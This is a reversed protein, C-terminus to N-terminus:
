ISQSEVPGQYQWMLHPLMAILQSPLVLYQQQALQQGALSHLYVAALTAPLPKKFQAIMGAIVGTLTDGMGGTAMAAVGTTNQYVNARQYIETRHQKLVLITKTPWKQLAQQNNAVTQEAITLQSLRHWEEQHPTLIIQAKTQPIQQHEALLTLASGDIIVVQQEALQSLVRQLIQWAFDTLGLGPGIVVVNSTLLTQTLLLDDHWDLFMIEPHQSHLATRNVPDSALTTLGAGTLLAASASMIGAGGYIASGAIVLVRGFTGKHSEQPRPQIVDNLIEETIEKM